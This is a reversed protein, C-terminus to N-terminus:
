TKMEKCTLSKGTIRYWTRNGREKKGEKRDRTKGKKGETLGGKGEPSIAKVGNFM